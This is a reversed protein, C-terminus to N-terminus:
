WDGAVGYADVDWVGHVEVAVVEVDEAGARAVEAGCGCIKVVVVRSTAIGGHKWGAAPDSDGEDGVVRSGPEHAYIGLWEGKVGGRGETSTQALTPRHRSLEKSITCTTYANDRQM